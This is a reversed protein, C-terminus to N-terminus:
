FRPELKVEMKDHNLIAISGATFELKTVGKDEVIRFTTLLKALVIKMQTMAFRMGICVRPGAGFPHYTLQDQGVRGDLFREPKFTEPDPFIEPNMHVACLLPIVHANKPLEYGEFKLFSMVM